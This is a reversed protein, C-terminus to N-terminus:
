ISVDDSQSSNLSGIDSFTAVWLTKVLVYHCHLKLDREYSLINILLMSVLMKDVQQNKNQSDWFAKHGFM